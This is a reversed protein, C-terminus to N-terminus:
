NARGNTVKVKDEILPVDVIKAREQRCYEIVAALDEDSLETLPGGEEIFLEKPLISAAIAVYKGPEEIRLIKIADAGHEKWDALFDSIFAAAFRNRSGVPRGKPNAVQGPQFLKAAM